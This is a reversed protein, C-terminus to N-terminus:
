QMIRFTMDGVVYYFSPTHELLVISALKFLVLSAASSIQFCYRWSLCRGLFVLERTLGSWEKPSCCVSDLPGITLKNNLRLHRALGMWFACALIGRAVVRSRAPPGTDWNKKLVLFRWFLSSCHPAMESSSSYFLQLLALSAPASEHGWKQVLPARHSIFRSSASLRASHFLYEDISQRSM